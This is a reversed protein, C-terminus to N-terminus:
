KIDQRNSGHNGSMHYLTQHEVPVPSRRPHVGPPQLHESPFAVDKAGRPASGRQDKRCGGSGPPPFSFSLFLSLTPLLIFPFPDSLLLYLSPVSYRQMDAGVGTQLDKGRDCGSISEDCINVSVPQWAEM